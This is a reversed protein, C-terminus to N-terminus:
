RSPELWSPNPWHLEVALLGFTPEALFGLLVSLLALALASWEMQWPPNERTVGEASTLAHRGVRIIYGAALLSGAVIPVVWWWQGGRLAANLLMWKAVFGGSPPLGMLGIGALAFAAMTVPLRATVGGLDAVRDHGLTCQITGAAMFVAAKACAHALMFYVGGCFAAWRGESSGVLPFLLFLYGLQAVTGYAVVVKLREARLAQVSGWVIAAAGLCGVVQGASFSLAAPFMELWLRLLLYYAAKVVLASLIPSMPAPANAHAPALWVHLPFLGAKLALGVTILSIATWAVPGPALSQGLTFTELTGHVGYILAVGGLYLLSGFTMLMLYRLAAGLANVTGALAIMAAAALSILELTVYRNFIDIALFTANLSGWLFLFLPWFLIGSDGTSTSPAAMVMTSTAPPPTKPQRRELVLGDDLLAQAAEQPEAQPAERAMLHPSRPTSDAEAPVGGKGTEPVTSPLPPRAAEAPLAVASGSQANGAVLGDVLPRRGGDEGPGDCPRYSYYGSAYLAVAGGVVTNMAVAVLTLGDVYLEIGLPREWGGLAYRLAGEQLIRWTLAVLGAVLGAATVLALPAGWRRGLVFAAVATAMPLVILWPAAHAIDPFSNM